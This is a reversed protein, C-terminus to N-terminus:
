RIRWCDIEVGTITQAEGSAQYISGPGWNWTDFRDDPYLPVTFIGSFVQNFGLAGFTTPLNAGYAYNPYGFIGAATDQTFDGPFDYNPAPFAANCVILDQAVFTGTAFVVTLQTCWVSDVPMNKLYYGGARDQYPEPGDSSTSVHGNPDVLFQDVGVTGTYLANTVDWPLLLTANNNLTISQNFAYISIAEDRDAGVSSVVLDRMDQASITGVQGDQFITTLLEARTRPTDTM